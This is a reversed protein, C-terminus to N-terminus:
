LLLGPNDGMTLGPFVSREIGSSQAGFLDRLLWGAYRRLDETPLLDRRDYLDAEALGPWRGLVRGGKIAGGALIAVGGTGHDTGGTGNPRATRGFETMAIVATKDWVAGLDTRLVGIAEALEGLSRTLLQGQNRHTDFGSLSFAAIRTEEALRGAAFRALAGARAARGASMGEGGVEASLAVAQEAAAAFLPDGAYIYDLLLAGQPSLTMAAEPSWSSHPAAGSLLRLQERGVSFAIQPDAAGVLGLFRNLWGDGAKTLTGDAQGGGNELLDQGDFHSRKDRYPTAVAHAFSLEGRRWLPLLPALAPHLAFYGDLDVAGELRARGLAPFNPDGVPAVADLGDLGGRLIIVVLRAAGPAEALVVPTVFPSAAASCGLAASRILFDRRTAM